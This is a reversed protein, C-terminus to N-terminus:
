GHRRSRRQLFGLSLILLTAFQPEPVSTVEVGHAYDDAAPDGVFNYINNQWVVRM